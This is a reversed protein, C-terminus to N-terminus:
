ALALLNNMIEEDILNKSFDILIDDLFLSFKDFREADKDFATSISMGKQRKFNDTLAKWASTQTPNIRNLM